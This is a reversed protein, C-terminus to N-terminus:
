LIGIYNQYILYIKGDTASNLSNTHHWKCIEKEM